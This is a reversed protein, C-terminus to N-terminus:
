RRIAVVLRGGGPPPSSLDLRAARQALRTFAGAPLSRWAMGFLRRRGLRVMQLLELLDWARVLGPRLYPRISEVEFGAASLAESWREVPWLNLHQFHRNRGAAYGAFPLALQRSFAETPATFVLRGGSRLARGAAALAAHIHPIHELVSNSLISGLSAAPIEATEM